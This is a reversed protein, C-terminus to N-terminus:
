LVLIGVLQNSGNFTYQRLTTGDTIRIQTTSPYSIVYVVGDASFGTLRSQSDYTFGVATVAGAQQGELLQSIIDSVAGVQGSHLKWDDSRALNPISM